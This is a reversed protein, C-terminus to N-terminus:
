DRCLNIFKIVDKQSIQDREDVKTSVHLAAAAQAYNISDDFSYGNLRSAALSGVFMDGAGHTSLPKVQYAPYLRSTGDPFHVEVGNAGLTVIKTIHTAEPASILGSYFEAEVKNLILVDLQSIFESNLKRAPAANLWIESGKLKAKQTTTLNVSELVENQLLLIGTDNVIRVASDDIRLNSGSVIAAAYDGSQEVIAVSMGSEGLDHQLQNTEISCKSLTKVLKEAYADTGVRGVFYVKAGNRQAAVAQNGGKGGFMYNVASGFVTEDAKPLFPTSVVVDLHLSGTVCLWKM